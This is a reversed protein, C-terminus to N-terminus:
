SDKGHPSEESILYYLISSKSKHHLLDGLTTKEVGKDFLDSVAYRGIHSRRYNKGGSVRLRIGARVYSRYCQLYSIPFLSSSPSISGCNHLQYSLGPLFVVYSSGRKSGICLARDPHLVDKVTLRLVESIRCFYLLCIICVTRANPHMLKENISFDHLLYQVSPFNDPPRYCYLTSNRARALSSSGSLTSM